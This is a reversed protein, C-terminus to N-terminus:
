ISSSTCTPGFFKVQDLLVIEYVVVLIVILNISLLISLSNLFLLRSLVACGNYYQRHSIVLIQSIVGLVRRGIGIEILAKTLPEPLVCNKYRPVFGRLM